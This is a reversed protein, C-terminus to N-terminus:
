KEIYNIVHKIVMNISGDGNRQIEFKKNDHYAEENIYLDIDKDIKLRIRKLKKEVYEKDVPITEELGQSAVFQIFNNQTQEQEKFIDKALSKVDVVDEERLKRKITTRIAEATDADAEMNSRTWTEAAKIFNKTMDRENEVITCRLYSGIFYNSGYEDNDKAKTQKDIVMLDFKNDERLPKIFACKQLKQGTVPLGTAQPIIDIGIKEDIFEIKHTFNKVYDLKIIGLMTGYETTFSLVMLDCSPINTNSKMLVFLQRALEKSVSLLDSEGNLYEQTLEKVLSRGENFLAYKLEEDKTAREIHRLVFKYIDENLELRFENLIPEELNNDLIHIVAENISIERIYEM